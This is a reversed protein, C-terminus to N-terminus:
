KLSITENVTKAMTLAGVIIAKLTEYRRIRTDLDAVSQAYFETRGLAYLKAIRTGAQTVDYAEAVAMATAPLRATRPPFIDNAISAAETQLFAIDLGKGRPMGCATQEGAVVTAALADLYAVTGEITRDIPPTPM